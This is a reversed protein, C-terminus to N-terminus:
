RLDGRHDADDPDEIKKEETEQEDFKRWEQKLASVTTDIVIKGANLDQRGVCRQGVNINGVSVAELYAIILCDINDTMEIELKKM